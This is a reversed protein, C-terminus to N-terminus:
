LSRRETVYFKKQDMDTDTVIFNDFPNISVALSANNVYGITPGAWYGIFHGKRDRCQIVNDAHIKAVSMSHTSGDPRKFFFGVDQMRHLDPSVNNATVPILM